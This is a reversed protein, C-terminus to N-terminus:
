ILHFETQRGALYYMRNDKLIVDTEMSFQIEKGDYPVSANLELSWATNNHVIYDGQGPVGDQMDWLGITPGAAHGDFGIPHSYICPMIGAEAAKARAAALVENGSRGATFENLTIDRLRNVVAMCKKLDDPADTEESRLVYGMEQLDICLGLYSFGIDCHLYDGPLIVEESAIEGIGRRYIELDYEFWPELGLDKTKQIMWFRVDENTTVGPLIVAPSFAIRILDRGIQAIGEYAALEEDTRTELWGVCVPEASVIKRRDEEYLSENIKEYLSHSLGDAFAITDSIDLGIKQPNMEHITRGLCEMQTEPEEPIRVSSKLSKAGWKQGKPNLWAPEYYEGIAPVPHTFSLRRVTGDTQLFFALITLRRATYMSAPSLTRFVPDENYENNCVIWCDIGSNKMVEPLVTELRKRLWKDRIRIQDRYPLIREKWGEVSTIGNALEHM